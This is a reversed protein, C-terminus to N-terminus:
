SFIITIKLDLDLDLDKLLRDCFIQFNETFFQNIVPTGFRLFDRSVQKEIRPESAPWPLSTCVM